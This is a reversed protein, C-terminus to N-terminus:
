LHSIVFPAPLIEFGFIREKAAQKLQYPTLGDESREEKLTRHIRELVEVLYAGTGCALDLVYVSPDALGSALGLESRLVRDVREVMYRVIARPTYWIGLQKRLEPDFAELFPEYFYQVPPIKKM